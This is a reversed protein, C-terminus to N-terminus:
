SNKKYVLVADKSRYEKSGYDDINSIELIQYNNKFISYNSDCGNKFHVGRFEGNDIFHYIYAALIEGNANLITALENRIFADFKKNDFDIFPAQLYDAINSLLIRDYEGLFNQTIDLVNLCKFSINCKQLNQKTKEYENQNYLWRNRLKSTCDPIYHMCIRGLLGPQMSNHKNRLSNERYLEEWFFDYPPLIFPKIRLFIEYEQSESRSAISLKDFFSFYDEYDFSLILAMRLNLYPFTLPNIDFTDIEFVDRNVLNLIHDGSSCVTLVKKVQEWKLLEFYEQINETSGFWVKSYNKDICNNDFVFSKAAIINKEIDEM